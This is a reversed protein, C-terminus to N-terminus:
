EPGRQQGRAMIILPFEPDNREIEERHLEELALGHLFATAALINGRSAVDVLSSPFHEEFIRRVSDRTFSWYWTGSHSNPVRTIGPVTLLLVGGPALSRALHRIACSFDYVLHLTQTLIICDFAGTPLEVANNLDTIITARPNDADVDLVASQTVREGGFQRTYAADKVELVHGAVDPCRERLFEEIYYRDIPTGRDFGWGRGIRTTRRLDAWRVAGVAPEGVRLLKKIGQRLSKSARGRGADKGHVTAADAM